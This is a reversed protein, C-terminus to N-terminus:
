VEWYYRRQRYRRIASVASKMGYGVFCGLIFAGCWGVWITQVEPM